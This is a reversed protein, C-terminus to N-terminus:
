VNTYYVVIKGYLDLKKKLYHCLWDTMHMLIGNIGIEGQHQKVGNIQLKKKHHHCFPCYFSNEGNKLQYSKGLVKELITLLQLNYM